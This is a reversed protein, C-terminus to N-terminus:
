PALVSEAEAGSMVSRMREAIVAEASGVSLSICLQSILGQVQANSQKYQLLQQQMEKM